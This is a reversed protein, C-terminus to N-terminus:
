IKKKTILNLLGPFQVSIVNFNRKYILRDIIKKFRKILFFNKPSNVKFGLYKIKFKKEIMMNYFLDKSNYLVLYDIKKEELFQCICFLYNSVGEIGSESRKDKLFLIKM